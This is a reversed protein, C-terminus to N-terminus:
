ADGRFAEHAGLADAVRRAIGRGNVFRTSLFLV